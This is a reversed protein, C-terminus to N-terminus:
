ETQKGLVPHSKQDLADLKAEDLAVVPETTLNDQLTRRSIASGYLEILGHETTWGGGREFLLLLPEYPDELDKPMPVGADLVAAWRLVNRCSDAVSPWGIGASILEELQSALEDPVSVDPAVHAAIDFFPWEETADLEEAWWAARRLYEQMLKARSLPHQFSTTGAWDAALLRSLTKVTRSESTV